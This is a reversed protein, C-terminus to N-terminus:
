NKKNLIRTDTVLKKGRFELNVRKAQETFIKEKRSLLQLLFPNEQQNRHAQKVPEQPLCTPPKEKM